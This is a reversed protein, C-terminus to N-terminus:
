YRNTKILMAFTKDLEGSCITSNINYLHNNEELLLLISSLPNASGLYHYEMAINDIKYLQGSIDQFVKAESGEIDMKLLDVSSEEALYHSLRRCAVNEAMISKKDHYSYRVAEHVSSGIDGPEDPKIFLDLFGDFDYLACNHLTVKDLRNQTINAQLLEFNTKNPEFCIIRAAPYLAKFYLAALGINAGADIIFPEPTTCKFYYQNNLFVETYTASFLSFNAYNIRYGDLRVPSQRLRPFWTMLELKILSWASRKRESGQTAKLLRIFRILKNM